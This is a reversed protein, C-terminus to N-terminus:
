ADRSTQKRKFLTYIVNSGYCEYREYGFYKMYTDMDEGDENLEDTREAVIVRIKHKQFDITRLAKYDMGEIDISLYDAEFHNKELLENIDMCPVDIVKRIDLGEKLSCKINQEDMSSRTPLSLIYFPINHKIGGGSIAINIIMDEKRHKQLKQCLLPNAEVLIGRAGHEYFLYSNNGRMYHNAGIDVYKIESIPKDWYRRFLELVAKDEKHQAYSGVIIRRTIAFIDLIWEAITDMIANSAIMGKLKVINM